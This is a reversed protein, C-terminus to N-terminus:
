KMLSSCPTLRHTIPGSMPWNLAPMLFLPAPSQTWPRSELQFNAELDPTHDSSSSLRLTLHWSELASWLLRNSDLFSLGLGLDNSGRGRSQAQDLQPDHLSHLLDQSWPRCTLTLYWATSALLPPWWHLPLLLSLLLQLLWDQVEVNLNSPNM